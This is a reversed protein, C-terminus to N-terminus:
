DDKLNNFEIAIKSPIKRYNVWEFISLSIDKIKESSMEDWEKLILIIFWVHELLLYSDITVDTHQSQRISLSINNYEKIFDNLKM